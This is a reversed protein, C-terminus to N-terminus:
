NRRLSYWFELCSEEPLPPRSWVEAVDTLVNETMWQVIQGFTKYTWAHYHIPFAERWKGQWTAEYADPPTPFAKSYFEQFHPQDRMRAPDPHQFDEIVHELPTPERDRDFTRRMDPVALVISGGPRLKRWSSLLAGIPDRTHEIVHCAVVFDISGDEIPSLDEFQAVIEPVVADRPDQGAYFVSDGVGDADHLDVYRVKCHLPVPMPDTGPGIEIGGGHLQSVAIERMGLVDVDRPPRHWAAANWDRPVRRGPKFADLVAAPVQRVDGPWDFGNGRIWDANAVWHRFGGVCYFVKGGHRSDQSQLLMGRTANRRHDPAASALADM